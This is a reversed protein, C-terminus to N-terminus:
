RPVRPGLKMEDRISGDRLADDVYLREGLMTGIGGGVRVWRPSGLCRSPINFVVRDAAYEVRTAVGRCPRDALEGQRDSRDTLLITDVDKGKSTRLSLVHVVQKGGTPRTLRDYVIAARVRREDHSVRLAVVDGERRRPAPAANAVDDDGADLRVVDRATDRAFWTDAHAPAGVATLVTAAALVGVLRHRIRM